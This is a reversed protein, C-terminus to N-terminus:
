SQESAYFAKYKELKQILADGEEFPALSNNLWSLEEVRRIPSSETSYVVSGDQTSLLVVSQNLYANVGNVFDAIRQPQFSSDDSFNMNFEVSDSSVSIPEGNEGLYFLDYSYAAIGNSMYPHYQLLYANESDTCLYISNWSVHAVGATMQYLISDNEDEVYLSIEGEESLNSADIWIVEATGDHTLDATLTRFKGAKEIADIESLHPEPDGKIPPKSVELNEESESPAATVDSVPESLTTDSVNDTGQETETVFPSVPKETCSTFFCFTTLLISIILFISKIRM